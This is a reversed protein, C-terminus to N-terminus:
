PSFDQKMIRTTYSAVINGRVGDYVDVSVPDSTFGACPVTGATEVRVVFYGNIWGTTKGIGDLGAAQWTAANSANQHLLPAPDIALSLATSMGTAKAQARQSIFLCYITLSVAAALGLSVVLLCALVEVFTFARRPANM